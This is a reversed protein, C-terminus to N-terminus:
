SRNTAGARAVAPGFNTTIVRATSFFETSLMRDPVQVDLDAQLFTMLQLFRVSDLLKTEFLHTDAGIATGGPVGACLENLFSIVQTEFEDNAM